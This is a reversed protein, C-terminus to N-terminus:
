YDKIGGIIVFPNPIAREIQEGAGTHMTDNTKNDGSGGPGNADGPFMSFIGGANKRTNTITVIVDEGPAVTVATNPSGNSVNYTTVYNAHTEEVVSYVGDVVGTYEHDEGDALTLVAPSLGGGVNITFETLTGDPLTVKVVTLTGTTSNAPQMLFFPCSFANGFLAIPTLTPPPNYVGTTYEAHLVSALEVGDSVRINKFQTQGELVGDPHLMIWFSDPSDLAYAIRPLTGTPYEFNSGFNYTNLLVGAASWRLCRVDNVGTGFDIIYIGIITDDELVLIDFVNFNGEDPTLNSLPLDNILDWRYIIGNNADISRSYYCITEDNSVALALGDTIGLDHATGLVGGQTISRVKDTTDTYLTWFKQTARCTRICGGSSAVIGTPATITFLENFDADYIKSVNGVGNLDNLCSIGNSLIDGSEGAVIPSIFRIVEYDTESSVISAPFGDTDDNVFIGGLPIPQAEMGEVSLSLQATAPNVGGPIFSFFYNDTATGKFIMPVPSTGNSVLNVLSNDFIDGDPSYTVLDQGVGFVNVINWNAEYTYKYWLDFVFDSSAMKANQSGSYPLTGIDTATPSTTNAPFSPNAVFSGSGVQTWDNGNGSDDLLDNLLPTDTVLNLTRVASRSNAEARFLGANFFFNWERFECFDTNGESFTDSGLLQETFTFASINLTASDILIGNIYFNHTSGSKAYGIHYFNNEVLTSASTRDAPLGAELVTDTLFEDYIGIYETYTGPSNGRYFFTRYAAGIDNVRVWFCCSYSSSAAVINTTRRLYDGIAALRIM